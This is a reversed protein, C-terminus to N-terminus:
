ENLQWPPLDFSPTSHSSLFSPVAIAHGCLPNRAPRLTHTHTDLKRFSSSLHAKVSQGIKRHHLQTHSAVLLLKAKIMLRDSGNERRRKLKSSEWGRIIEGSSERDREQLSNFVTFHCRTQLCRFSILVRAFRRRDYKRKRGWDEIPHLQLAIEKPRFLLADRIQLRNCTFASSISHFCNLSDVEDNRRGAANQPDRTWECERHHSHSQSFQTRRNVATMSSFRVLSM